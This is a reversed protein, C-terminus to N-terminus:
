LPWEITGLAGHLEWGLRTRTDQITTIFYGWWGSLVNSRIPQYVNYDAMINM